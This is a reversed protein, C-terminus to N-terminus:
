HIVWFGTDHKSGYWATAFTNGSFRLCYFFVNIHQLSENVNFPYYTARVSSEFNGHVSYSVNIPRTVPQRQARILLRGVVADNTAV